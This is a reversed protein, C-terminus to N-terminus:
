PADGGRPRPARYQRLYPLLDLYEARARVEFRVRASRDRELVLVGDRLVRHVLDLPARNLVVVQAPRGALRELDGELDLPLGDLTRPPDRDLLIAIDVDSAAHATGRAVSGFLYAAVLGDRRGEFFVRLQDVLPAV